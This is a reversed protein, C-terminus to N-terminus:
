PKEVGSNFISIKINSTTTAVGFISCYSSSALDAAPCIAGAAASVIYITGVAVTAGPNYDGSVAIVCPQGTAAGCLAVGKLTAELVTGDAQALKLVNAAATDVYVLQGATITAGAVYEQKSVAGDVAVVSGATISLDAM